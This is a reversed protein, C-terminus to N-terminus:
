FKESAFPTALIGTGSVTTCGKAGPGKACGWFNQTANVTGTSLNQVGVGKGLLNNLNVDANTPTNVVVDLSEDSINNGSIITGSAASVGFVNIGTPGSTAADDTDAHNGSITNGVIVNNTLDEGPAHSHMAVGPLGNNTLTNNIVVNGSAIGGVVGDFIGVGAGDGAAGLGNATSFNESITNQTVGLPTASGTLAAPSHSALTIGCDFPNKRVTNGTILNYDARATDDSILIGGANHEVLNNAVISHNAGLLHIGEGCDFSENTEFVPIGPCAPTAVILAKDSGTVLNGSVTVSSANAVLIGEFNANRVTFGSVVVNSLGPNDIGDIFVGNALATADIITNEQNESILSLSKGITVDEAYTGKGVRITDNVAAATVAATITTFCGGKGKPNVCLTASIAVQPVALILLACVVMKATVSVLCKEANPYMRNM